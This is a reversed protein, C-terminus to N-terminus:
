AAMERLLQESRQNRYGEELMLNLLTRASNIRGATVLKDACENVFGTFDIRQRRLAAFYELADHGRGACVQSVGTMLLTNPDDPHEALSAELLALASDATGICLECMALNTIVERYGPKLQLAKRSAQRSEEFRSLMLLNYGLNFWAVDMEPNVALARKWLEAAEEHRELEGAQVALEYIAKLEEGKEELKRIGLEYYALKKERIRDEDLFGYHHVPIDCDIVRIGTRDLSPEVIEHIPNEFTIGMRNPFIRVKTSPVWGGAAEELPYGGDNPQWKERNVQLMYNRTVVAFASPATSQEWLLDKLRRHDLPSLVEDADMVFIWRCSAHNLSENRAASFDGNWPFDFVKAGFLRAVERTRDDSGTDVVIIEDAIPLLSSLCRPLNAEENKAIMCVSVSAPAEEDSPEVPGVSDRLPLSAEILGQPLGFQVVAQQIAELADETAGKRILLDILLFTIRRNDPFLRGAERFADIGRELYEPQHVADHFRQACDPSTPCLLFGRELLLFAKESLGGASALHGLSTFAAGCGPDDELTKRYLTEATGSDGEREAIKGLLLLSRAQLYAPVTISDLRARAAAMDGLGELAHAMLLAVREKERMRPTEGLVGLADQFRKEEILKEALFLYFREEEPVLKIGEQLITEVGLDPEGKHFALEAKELTKLTLIKKAQAEDTFPGGWKENFRGHNGTMACSFDIGNGRFTASGHHHIFVDGAVLNRYGELAARLCYDDDEFNGSGFREDLFGIRDVLERRFLMCFGVIRRLPIRRGRYTDRFERAYGDLGTIDAYGVVPAMQIGSISNTMPGVIGVDPSSHLCELLGSLWGPTVITDNNLLLIYSGNAAKIGQNCGKSFGLNESNEVLSYNERTGVIERLWAVTGDSSGNDVLIIEHPEPTHREISALCEKTFSLQNWTLIVISVSTSPAGTKRATAEERRLYPSLVVGTEESSGNRSIILDPRVEDLWRAHLLEINRRAQRFREPGSQSEHHVLVSSPEYVLHGGVRRLKFCLDVDEYGNWFEEDFGGAQDFAAKRVILCAATLAQVTLPYNALPFDSPRGQHANVAVLLDSSPHDEVILVGAHQITGDPYLLKSGAAVVGKDTDMIRLLPELWGLRPETDNNLFLLLDARAARAGQNCAKAFGQNVQNRIVRADSAEDKLFAQTGDTSANDVIIIEYLDSPTTSRVAHLCVRTFEIKNFVPIIISV